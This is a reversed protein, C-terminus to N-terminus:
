GEGWRVCVCWWGEGWRSEACGMPSACTSNDLGPTHTHTHSPPSEHATCVVVQTANGLSPQRAASRLSKAWYKCEVGSLRSSCREEFLVLRSERWAYDGSSRVFGGLAAGYLRDIMRKLYIVNAMYVVVEVRPTRLMRHIRADAHPHVGSNPEELLHAAACHHM